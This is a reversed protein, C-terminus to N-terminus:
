DTIPRLMFIHILKDTTQKIKAAICSIDTDSYVSITSSIITVACVCRQCFKVNPKDCILMTIILINFIFLHSIQEKIMNKKNKCKMECNETVLQVLLMLPYNVLISFQCFQFSLKTM